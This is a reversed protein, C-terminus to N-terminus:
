VSESCSFMKHKKILLDVMCSKANVLVSIFFYWM